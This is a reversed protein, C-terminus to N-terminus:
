EQRRLQLRFRLDQKIGAPDALLRQRDRARLRRIVTQQGEGIAPGVAIIM